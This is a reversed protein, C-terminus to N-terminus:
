KFMKLQFCIIKILLILIDFIFKDKKINIIIEPYNFFNKFNLFLYNFLYKFLFFKMFWNSLKKCKKIHNM